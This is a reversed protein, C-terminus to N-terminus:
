DAGRQEVTYTEHPRFLLEVTGNQGKELGVSLLRQPLGAKELQQALVGLDHMLVKMKQPQDDQMAAPNGDVQLFIDMRYPQRAIGARLLSTLTEMFKKNEASNDGINSVARSLDAYNMRMLLVGRGEDKQTQVGAVHGQFLADMQDIMRGEGASLADATATSPQWNENNTIKSAFAEEISEMLPKAKEEKIVSVSNLMIFFALMIVFLSLAPIQSALNKTDDAVIKRRRGKM